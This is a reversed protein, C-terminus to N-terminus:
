SMRNTNTNIFGVFTNRFLISYEKLFNNYIEEDKILIREQQLFNPPYHILKEIVEEGLINTREILGDFAIEINADLFNIICYIDFLDRPEDRNYICEFKNSLITEVSDVLFGKQTKVPSPKNYSVDQMLEIKLNDFVILQKLTETNNTIKYPIKNQKIYKGKEIYISRLARLRRSLFERKFYPRNRREQEEIFLKIHEEKFIKLHECIYPSNNLIGGFLWRAFDEDQINKQIIEPTLGTNNWYCNKIISKAIKITNNM